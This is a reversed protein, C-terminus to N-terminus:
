LEPQTQSVIKTVSNTKKDPAAPFEALCAKLTWIQKQITAIRKHRLYFYVGEMGMFFDNIVAVRDGFCSKLKNYFYKNFVLM